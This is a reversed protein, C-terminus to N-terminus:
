AKSVTHYAGNCVGLQEKLYARTRNKEQERLQNVAKYDVPKTLVTELSEMADVLRDRLKLDELLGTLKNRNSPRMIVAFQKENIVSFVAGHFTDTVVYDAYYFYDLVRMPDAPIYLDCWFQSGGIAVTKLKKKKAFSQIAQIEEATRIRQGYAYVLLYKKIPVKKHLRKDLNGVLVPDLHHYIEGSYLRSVYRETAEDRVSIARYNAMAERVAEVDGPAIDEARASGCAAAYTIPYETQSIKGHLQLCLGRAHNLVEDSGVVVRDWSQSNAKGDLKLETQMFRRIKQKNRKSLKTIWWRKGKQLIGPPYAPPIDYDSEETVTRCVPLSEGEEIDLFSLERVGLERLIERLSYAQLVSGFNVVRQMSLISVKM